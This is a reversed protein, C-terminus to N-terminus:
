AEVALNLYENKTMNFKWSMAADADKTNEEVNPDVGSIYIRNTSPDKYKLYYAPKPFVKTIKYLTNGRESEDIKEADLEKLMIEPEMYKIAIMRQEMNELSLANKPKITKDVISKWLKKDFNVGHLYYFEEGGRWQISPFVTSHFRNQADIKVLPTPVLYLTDEWELRYGVGYEKAQM